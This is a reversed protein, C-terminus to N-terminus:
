RSLHERASHSAHVAKWISSRSTQARRAGGPDVITVTLAAYAADAASLAAPHGTAPRLDTRPM